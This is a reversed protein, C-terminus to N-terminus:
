YICSLNTSEAPLLRPEILVLQFIAHPWSEFAQGGNAIVPCSSTRRLEGDTPLLMLLHYKLPRPFPNKVTLLMYPKGVKQQLELVITNEPNAIAEVARLNVLRDGDLDAEVFITEGAYVTIREGDIIIPRPEDFRTEQQRGDDLTLHVIGPQRCLMTECLAILDERSSSDQAAAPAAACIAALLLPTLARRMARM